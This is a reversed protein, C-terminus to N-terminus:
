TTLGHVWSFFHDVHTTGDEPNDEICRVCNSAPFLKTIEDALWQEKRAQEDILHAITKADEAREIDCSTTCAGHCFEGNLEKAADRYVEVDADDFVQALSMLGEMIAHCRKIQTRDAAVRADVRCFQCACDTHHNAVWERLEEDTAKIHETM